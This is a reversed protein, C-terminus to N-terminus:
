FSVAIHETPGNVEYLFLCSHGDGKVVERYADSPREDSLSINRGKVASEVVIVKIALEGELRLGINEIRTKIGARRGSIIIPEV